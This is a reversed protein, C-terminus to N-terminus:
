LGCTRDAGVPEEIEGAEEAEDNVIGEAIETAFNEAVLHGWPDLSVIRQPDARRHPELLHVLRAGVAVPEVDVDRHRVVDGLGAYRRRTGGLVRIVLATKAGSNDAVKVVSEQQIM